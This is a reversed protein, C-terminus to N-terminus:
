CFGWSQARNRLQIPLSLTSCPQDPDRPSCTPGLEHAFPLSTLFWPFCWVENSLCSGVRLRPVGRVPLVSSSLLTINSHSVLRLGPGTCLPSSAEGTPLSAATPAQLPLPGQTRGSKNPLLSQGQSTFATPSLPWHRRGSPMKEPGSLLTFLSQTGGVAAGVWQGMDAGPLAGACCISPVSGLHGLQYCCLASANFYIWVSLQPKPLARSQHSFRYTGAIYQIHTGGVDVPQFRLGMITDPPPGEPPSWTVLTSGGFPNTGRSWLSVCSREKWWTVSTSPPQRCVLFCAEGSVPAALVEMGSGPEPSSQLVRWTELAGRPEGLLLCPGCPM